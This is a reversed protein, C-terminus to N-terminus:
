DAAAVKARSLGDSVFLLGGCTLVLAMAPFFTLWWQGTPLFRYGEQILIGWEPAPVEAGVGIYSLGALLSIAGAVDFSAQILLLRQIAPLLHRWMVFSESAGLAQAASIFPMHKLQAVQDRSLRVYVPWLVLSIALVAGPLGADLTGAIVLAMIMGPIALFIDALRLICVDICGGYWGAILGLLTGSTSVAAVVILASGLSLLTGALVRSATDRGLQDTGMPHTLSPPQLADAVHPTTPDLIGLLLAVFALMPCILFLLLGSLVLPHRLTYM